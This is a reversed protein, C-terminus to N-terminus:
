ILIDPPLHELMGKKLVPFERVLIVLGGVGNDSEGSQYEDKKIQPKKKIHVADSYELIILGCFSTM